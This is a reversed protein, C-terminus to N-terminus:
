NLKEPRVPLNSTIQKMMNQISQLTILCLQEDGDALNQIASEISSELTLALFKIDNDNIQKLM